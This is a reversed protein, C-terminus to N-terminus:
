DAVRRIEGPSYVRQGIVEYKGVPLKITDHEEHELKNEKVVILFFRNGNKEKALFSNSNYIAHKHGTTEGYALIVSNELEKGDISTYRKEELEPTEEVKQLFVDGQRYQNM